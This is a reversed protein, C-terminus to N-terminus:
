GLLYGGFHSYTDPYWYPDSNNQRFEVYDDKALQITWINSVNAIYYEPGTPNVQKPVRGQHSYMVGNKYIEFRVVGVSQNNNHISGGYFVYAGPTPATFRTRAPSGVSSINNNRDYNVQGYFYERAVDTAPGRMHFAPSKPVSIYGNSSFSGVSTSNDDTSFNLGIGASVISIMGSNLVIYGKRIGATDYLGLGATNDTVGQIKITSNGSVWDAKVHLATQNATTTGIGVTSTNFSVNGTFTDGAKNAPTYGISNATVANAAISDATIKSLAM